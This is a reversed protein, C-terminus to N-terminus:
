VILPKQLWQYLQALSAVQLDEFPSCPLTFSKQVPSVFVTNQEKMSKM